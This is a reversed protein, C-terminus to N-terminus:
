HFGIPPEPRYRLGSVSTGRASKSIQPVARFATPHEEAGGGGHVAGHHGQWGQMVLQMKAYM